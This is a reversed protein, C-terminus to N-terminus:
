PTLFLQVHSLSKVEVNFWQKNYNTVCCFYLYIFSYLFKVTIINM